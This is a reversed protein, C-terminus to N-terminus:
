VCDYKNSGKLTITIKQNGHHIRANGPTVETINMSELLDSFDDVSHITMTETTQKKQKLLDKFLFEQIGKSAMLELVIPMIQRREAGCLSKRMEKYSSGKDIAESVIERIQVKSLQTKM